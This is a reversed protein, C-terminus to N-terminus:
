NIIPLVLRSSSKVKMISSIGISAHKFNLMAPKQAGQDDATLYVRIRHGKKFRRANPCFPIRYHVVEKIPVAHFVDCHLVPAGITSLEEDVVRLGARLYAETIDVTAGTENVDQLVAIFATDPQTCTVDLELEIPGVMDIDVDLPPTSWILFDPPDAESPRSRGLGAGLNMFTRSGSTGEDLQLDGDVRLAYSTYRTSPLPWKDATNWEGTGEPIIYRIKPGELIGTDIGKLWHDFWALAEIHM